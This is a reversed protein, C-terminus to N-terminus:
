LTTGKGRVKAAKRRGPNNAHPKHVVCMEESEILDAPTSPGTSQDSLQESSMNQTLVHVSKSLDAGGPNDPKPTHLLSNNAPNGSVAVVANSHSAAAADPVQVAEVTAVPSTAPKTRAARGESQGRLTKSKQAVAAYSWLPMASPPGNQGPTTQAVTQKTPLSPFSDEKNYDLVVEDANQAQVDVNSLAVVTKLPKGETHTKCSGVTPPAQAAPVLVTTSTVPKVSPTSTVPGPLSNTVKAFSMETQSDQFASQSGSSVPIAKEQKATGPVLPLSQTKDSKVNGRVNGVLNQSPTLLNESVNPTVSSSWQESTLTSQATQRGASQGCLSTQNQLKETVPQAHMTQGQKRVAQGNGSVSPSHANVNQGSRSSSQGYAGGQVQRNCIQSQGSVTPNLINSSHSQRNVNQAQGGAAASHGSNNKKQHCNENCSNISLGQTNANHSQVGVSANRENPTPNEVIVTENQVSASQSHSIVSRGSSCMCVPANDASKRRARAAIVADSIAPAATLPPTTARVTNIPLRGPRSNGRAVETHRIMNDMQKKRNLREESTSVVSPSESADERNTDKSDKPVAETCSAKQVPEVVEKVALKIDEAPKSQKGAPKQASAHKCDEKSAKIIDAYSARGSGAETPSSPDSGAKDREVSHDRGTVPLSKVSEVDSTYDACLYDNANGTSNRRGDQPRVDQESEPWFRACGPMTRRGCWRDSDGSRTLRRKNQKKNTVVQFEEEVTKEPVAEVASHDFESASSAGLPAAEKLPERCAVIERYVVVDGSQRISVTSERANTSSCQEAEEPLFDKELFEEKEQSKEDSEDSRDAKEGAGEPRDKKRGKKRKEKEAADKGKGKAEPGDIFELLVDITQDGRHGTIESANLM